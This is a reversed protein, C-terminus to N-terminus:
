GYWRRAWTKIKRRKDGTKPAKSKKRGSGSTNKRRPSNHNVTPIIAQVAGAGHAVFPGAVGVVRSYNLLLSFLKTM